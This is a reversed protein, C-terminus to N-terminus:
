PAFVVVTPSRETLITGREKLIITDLFDGNLLFLKKNVAVRHRCGCM